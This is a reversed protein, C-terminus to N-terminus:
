YSYLIRRLIHCLLLLSMRYHFSYLMLDQMGRFNNNNNQTIDASQRTTYGETPVNIALSTKITEGTMIAQPKMEENSCSAFGMAALPFAFLLHKTKMPM